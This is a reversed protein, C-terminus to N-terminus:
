VVYRLRNSIREECAHSRMYTKLMHLAFMHRTPCQQHGKSCASKCAATLVIISVQQMVFLGAPVLMPLSTSIIDRASATIEQLYVLGKERATRRCVLAQAAICILLKFLETWIVAVSALYPHASSTRSFRLILSLATGQFIQVQMCRLHNISAKLFTM